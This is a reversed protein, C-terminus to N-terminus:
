EATAMTPEAPPQAQLQGALVAKELNALVQKIQALQAVIDIDPTVQVANGNGVGVQDGDDTREEESDDDTDEQIDDKGLDALGLKNHVYHYSSHLVGGKVPEDKVDEYADAIIAIIITFATFLVITLFSGYLLGGFGPSHRDLEVADIAGM